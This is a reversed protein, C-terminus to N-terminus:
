HPRGIEHLPMAIGLQQLLTVVNWDVWHEIIKGGDIRFISTGNLTIHKRTPPLGLFQREHTGDGTWTVVVEDGEAILRTIGTFFDPFSTRVQQIHKYLNEPGPGLSPFVADHTECQPAIIESLVQSSAQNWGEDFYRRAIAKNQEVKRADTTPAV